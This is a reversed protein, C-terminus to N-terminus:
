SARAPTFTRLSAAIAQRWQPGRKRANDLADEIRGPDDREFLDILERAQWLDKGAKRTHAPRHHAVILKHVAFRAPDPVRVLVGPGYLAVVDITDELLYDMFRLPTAASAIGKISVPGATRGLTTLVDVEFGSAARFRKPLKDDRSMAAAFSPDARQLTKEIPEAGAVQPIALRSIALDADQTQMAAASLFAGLPCPYLQFAVTGILTVGREFLGAASLVALLKGTALDPAPVGARKLVSVTKQTLKADAAARQHAAAKAEADAEGATGLYIQRKDSFTAYLRRQGGELRRSITAARAIDHGVRQAVDAYLTQLNLPIPKM